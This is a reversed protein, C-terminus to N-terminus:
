LQTHDSRAAVEPVPVGAEAFLKTAPVYLIVTVSTKPQVFTSEISTFSGGSSVTVMSVCFSGSQAPSLLPDINM